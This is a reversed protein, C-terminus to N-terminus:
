LAVIKHSSALFKCILVSKGFDLLMLASSSLTSPVLLLVPSFDKRTDRMELWSSSKGMGIRVIYLINYM